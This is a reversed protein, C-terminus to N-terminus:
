HDAVPEFQDRGTAPDTTMIYNGRKILMAQAMAKARGPEPLQFYAVFAAAALNSHYVGTRVVLHNVFDAICSPLQFTCQTRAM